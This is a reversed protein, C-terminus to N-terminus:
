VPRAEELLPGFFFRLLDDSAYIREGSLRDGGAYTLIGILDHRHRTGAEEVVHTYEQGVGGEMTWESRLDFGRVRPRCHDFFREYYSRAAPRGQLVVGLPQLEYRPDEDLTAMTAELDGREEAAAHAHAVAVMREVEDPRM